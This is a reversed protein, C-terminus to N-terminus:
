SSLQARARHDGGAAVRAVRVEGAVAAPGRLRGAGARRTMEGVVRDVPQVARGECSTAAAEVRHRYRAESVM